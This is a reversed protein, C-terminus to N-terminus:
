SRRLAAVFGCGALGLALGLLSYILVPTSNPKDPVSAATLLVVNYGPTADLHQVHDILGEAATDAVLAATKGSDATGIVDVLPADPSAVASVSKAIDQPRAPLGESVFSPGVVAPDAGIRAFAQALESGTLDGTRGPAPAVLVYAHATYAATRTAGFIGGALGGVLGGILVLGVVASLPLRTRAPRRRPAEAAPGLRERGGAGPRGSRPPPDDTLPARAAPADSTGPTTM